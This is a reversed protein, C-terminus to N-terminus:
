QGHGKDTRGFLYGLALTILPSVIKWYEVTQISCPIFLVLIGAGVLLFIMVWAISSAARQTSGFFSGVVGAELKMEQAKLLYDSQASDTKYKAEETM